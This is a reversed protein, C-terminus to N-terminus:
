LPHQYHGGGEQLCAVVRETDRFKTVLRYMTTNPVEKDPYASGFEERVADFSKSAFYHELISVLEEKTLQKHLLFCATKLM